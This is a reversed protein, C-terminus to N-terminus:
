NNSELDKRTKSILDQVTTLKHMYDTQSKQIESTIIALEERYNKQIENIRTNITEALPEYESEVTRIDSQIEELASTMNMKATNAQQSLVQVDRRAKRMYNYLKHIAEAEHKSAANVKSYLQRIHSKIARETLSFLETANQLEHKQEIVEKEQELVADQVYRVATMSDNLEGRMRTLASSSQGLLESMNRLSSDVHSINTKVVGVDNQLRQFQDTSATLQPEVFSLRTEIDVLRSDDAATLTQQEMNNAKQLAELALTKVFAISSRAQQLNAQLSKATSRINTVKVNNETVLKMAKKAESKAYDVDDRIDGHQLTEVVLAHTTKLNEIEANVETVISVMDDLQVTTNSTTHRLAGLQQSVREMDGDHQEMASDLAEASHQLAVETQNTVDDLQQRLEDISQALTLKEVTLNDIMEEQDLVNKGLQSLDLQFGELSRSLSSLEADTLNLRGVLVDLARELGPLVDVIEAFEKKQKRLKSYVDGMQEEYNEKHQKLEKAVLGTQRDTSTKLKSLQKQMDSVDDNTQATTEKLTNVHDIVDRYQEQAEAISANLLQRQESAALIHQDHGQVTANLKEVTSQTANIDARINKLSDDLVKEKSSVIQQLSHVSRIKRQVNGLDRSTFNSLAAVDSRLTEMATALEKSSGQSTVRIEAFEDQINKFREEILKELMAVSEVISYVKAESSENFSSVTMSLKDVRTALLAEMHDIKDILNSIESVTYTGALSVQGMNDSLINLQETVSRLLPLTAEKVEKVSSLLSSTEEEHVTLIDDGSRESFSDSSPSTLLVEPLTRNFYQNSGSTLTAIHASVDDLKALLRDQKGGGDAFFSFLQQLADTTNEQFDQLRRVLDNTDSCTQLVTALTDNAIAQASKELVPQLDAIVDSSVNSVGDQVAILLEIVDDHPDQILIETNKRVRESNKLLGDMGGSLQTNMQFVSGYLDYIAQYLGPLKWDRLDSGMQTVDDRVDGIVTLNKLVHQTVDEGLEGVHVSLEATSQVLGGLLFTADQLHASNQQLMSNTINQEVLMALVLHSVDSERRVDLDNFSTQIAVLRDDLRDTFNTLHAIFNEYQHVWAVSILDNTASNTTAMTEMVRVESEKIQKSLNKETELHESLMKNLTKVPNGTIDGVNEETVSLSKKIDNVDISLTVMDEQIAEYTAAETVSIDKLRKDVVLLAQQSELAVLEIDSVVGSVTDLKDSNLSVQRNLEKTVDDLQWSKVYDRQMADMKENMVKLASLIADVDCGCSSSSSSSTTQTPFTMTSAKQKATTETFKDTTQVGAAVLIASVVIVIIAQVSAISIEMVVAVSCAFCFFTLM